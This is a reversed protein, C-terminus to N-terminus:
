GASGRRQYWLPTYNAAGPQRTSGTEREIWFNHCPRSRGTKGSRTEGNSKGRRRRDIGVTNEKSFVGWLVRVQAQYGDCANRTDRSDDPSQSHTRRTRSSGRIARPQSAYEICVRFHRRPHVMHVCTFKGGHRNKPYYRLPSTLNRGALRAHFCM